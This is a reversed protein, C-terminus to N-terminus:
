TRIKGSRREIERVFQEREAESSFARKPVIIGAIRDVM